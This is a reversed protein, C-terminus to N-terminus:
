AGPWFSAITGIIGIVTALVVAVVDWWRWGFVAAGAWVPIVILTLCAFGSGLLSMLAEFSPMVLAGAISLCALGVRICPRIFAKIRESRHHRDEALVSFTSTGPDPFTSAGPATVYDCDDDSPLDSAPSGPRTVYRPTPATQPILVTKHLHLWTFVM